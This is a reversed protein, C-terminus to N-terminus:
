NKTESLTISQTAGCSVTGNSDTKYATFDASVEVGTPVDSIVIAFLYDGDVKEVTASATANDDTTYTIGGGVVSSYVSKCSVKQAKSVGNYTLTVYFGVDSVASLNDSDLAGIVRYDVLGSETKSQFGYYRADSEKTFCTSTDVTVGTGNVFNSPNYNSPTVVCNELTTDIITKGVISSVSTSTDSVSLTNLSVSCNSISLSKTEGSYGVIGGVNNGTAYISGNFSCDKIELKTETSNSGINGIIGGVSGAGKVTGNIIHVNEICLDLNYVNSNNRSGVLIGVNGVADGTGNSNSNGASADMTVNVLNLDKITGGAYRFMGPNSSCNAVNIGTITHGNGDFIGYFIKGSWTYNSYDIDAMLKITANKFYTHPNNCNFKYLDDPTRILFTKGSKDSSDVTHESMEIETNQTDVAFVSMPLVSLLMACLILCSIIKKM